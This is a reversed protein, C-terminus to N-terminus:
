EGDGMVSWGGGDMWGDRVVGEGRPVALFGDSVHYGAQVRVGRGDPGPQRVRGLYLHAGLGREPVERRAQRGVALRDPPRVALRAPPAHPLPPLLGLRGPSVGRRPPRRSARPLPMQALHHHRDDVEPTPTSGHRRRNNVRCRPRKPPRPQPCNIEKELLAIFPGVKNPCRPPPLLNLTPSPQGPDHNIPEHHTSNLSTWM